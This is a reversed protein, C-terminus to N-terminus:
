DGEAPGHGAGPAATGPTGYAATAPGRGNTKDNITAKAQDHGVSAKGAHARVPSRGNRRDQRPIAHNISMARGEENTIWDVESEGALTEVETWNWPKPTHIEDRLREALSLKCDLDHELKARRPPNTELSLDCNLKAIRKVTLALFERKDDGNAKRSARSM